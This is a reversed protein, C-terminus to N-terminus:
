VTEERSAISAARLTATMEHEEPSIAEDVLRIHHIVTSHDTPVVRGIASVGLGREFLLRMLQRRAEAQYHGGYLVRGCPGRSRTTLFEPAVGYADAVAAIIPAALEEDSMERPPAPEAKNAASTRTAATQFLRWVRQGSQHPAASPAARQPEETM